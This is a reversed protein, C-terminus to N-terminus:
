DILMVSYTGSINLDRKNFTPQWREEPGSSCFSKPTGGGYITRVMRRTLPLCVARATQARSVQQHRGSQEKTKGTKPMQVKMLLSMVLQQLSRGEAFIATSAPRHALVANERLKKTVCTDLGARSRLRSVNCYFIPLYIKGYIRVSAFAVGSLSEM